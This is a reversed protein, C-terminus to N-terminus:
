NIFTKSLEVDKIYLIGLTFINEKLITFIIFIFM